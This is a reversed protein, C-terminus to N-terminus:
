LSSQAGKKKKAWQDLAHLKHHEAKTLVVLNSLTNDDKVGNIHHVHETPLLKRGLHKEMVYRHEQIVVGDDDLRQKYPHKLRRKTSPLITIGLSRLAEVVTSQHCGIKSAIERSTYKPYNEQLWNRDKLCDPAKPQGTQRAQIGHRKLAQSVGSPACNLDKGIQRVTKTAYAEKLWEHDHLEKIWKPM